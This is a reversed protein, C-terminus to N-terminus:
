GGGNGGSGGGGVSGLGGGGGSGGGGASSGGGGASSTTTTGGASGGGSGTSTTTSSTAGGQSTPPQCQDDLKWTGNAQCTAPYYQQCGTFYNCIAGISSCPTGDEPIENPCSIHNNPVPEEDVCAGTTALSGLALSGVALMAALQLRM